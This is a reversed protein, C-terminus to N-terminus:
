RPPPLTPLRERLPPMRVRPDLLRQDYVFDENAEIRWSGGHLANLAHVVEVFTWCSNSDVHYRGPPMALLDLLASATDPLFSTAPYWKASARIVGDRAMSEALHTLMNNGGPAAGIQWGIRAVRADRNAEFAAAEGMRKEFGYGTPADPPSEVTFPGKAHDSFVMATSVYLFPISRAAAIAALSRTWDINVLRGEDTRGTGTSPVAAHILADPAISAVVDAHRAVDDPACTNRDWGRLTWHRRQGESQLAKGLTGGLGTVLLRM